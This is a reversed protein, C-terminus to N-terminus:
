ISHILKKARAMEQEMIWRIKKGQSYPHPYINRKGCMLCYIELHEQSLFVRDVIMRGSCKPCKIM